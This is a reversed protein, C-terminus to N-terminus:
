RICFDINHFHVSVSVICQFWGRIALGLPSAGWDNQTFIVETGLERASCLAPLAASM